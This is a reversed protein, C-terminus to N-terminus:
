FRVNREKLFYIERHLINDTLKETYVTEWVYELMERIEQNVEASLYVYLNRRDEDDFYEQNFDLFNETMEYECLPGYYGEFEIKRENAACRLFDMADNFFGLFDGARRDRYENLLMNEFYTM